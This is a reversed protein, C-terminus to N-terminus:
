EGGGVDHVQDRGRAEELPPACSRVHDRLCTSCGGSSDRSDWTGQRALPPAVALRVVIVFVDRALDFVEPDFLVFDFVVVIRPPGAGSGVVDDGAPALAFSV